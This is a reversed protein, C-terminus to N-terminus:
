ETGMWDSACMREAAKREEWKLRDRLDTPANLGQVLAPSGRAQRLDEHVRIRSLCQSLPSHIYLVQTHVEQGDHPVLYM